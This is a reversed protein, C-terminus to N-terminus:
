LITKVQKTPNFVFLFRDFEEPHWTQFCNLHQFMLSLFPYIADRKYASKTSNPWKNFLFYLQALVDTLRWWMLVQDALSLGQLALPDSELQRAMMGKANVGGGGGRTYM